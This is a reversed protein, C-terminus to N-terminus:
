EWEAGVSRPDVERATMRPNIVAAPIGHWVFREIMSADEVTVFDNLTEDWVEDAVWNRTYAEIEDETMDVMVELLHRGPEGWCDLYKSFWVFRDEGDRFGEVPIAAAGELATRHFLRITVIEGRSM